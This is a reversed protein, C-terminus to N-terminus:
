WQTQPASQCVIIPLKDRNYKKSIKVFFFLTKQKNINKTLIESNWCKQSHHFICLHHFNNSNILIKNFIIKILLLYQTDIIISLRIFKHCLKQPVDMMFIKILNLQLQQTIIKCLQMLIITPQWIKIIGIM